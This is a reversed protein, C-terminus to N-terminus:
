PWGPQQQAPAPPWPQRQQQEQRAPAQAAGAQGQEATMAKKKKNAMSLAALVTYPDDKHITAYNQLAPLDMASLSTKQPTLSAISM